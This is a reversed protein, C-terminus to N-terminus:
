GEAYLTNYFYIFWVASYIMTAIVVGRLTNLTYPQNYKRVWYINACVAFILITRLRKEDGSGAPDMVGATVMLEFIGYVIGFGLVPTVIGLLLGTALSNKELFEM